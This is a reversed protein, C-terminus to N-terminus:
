KIRRLSAKGKEGQRDDDKLTPRGTEFVVAKMFREEGDMTFIEQGTMQETRLIWSINSPPLSLVHMSVHWWEDRRTEDRVIDNVLAYVLMEPKKAAILVIDGIDLTDKFVMIKKLDEVLKEM